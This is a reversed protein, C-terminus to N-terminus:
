AHLAESRRKITQTFYCAGVKQIYGAASLPGNALLIFNNLTGTVFFLAYIYEPISVEIMIAYLSLKVVCM